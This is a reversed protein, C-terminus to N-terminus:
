PTPRDPYAPPTGAVEAAKPVARSKSAMRAGLVLITVIAAVVGAFYAVAVGYPYAFVAAILMAILGALLLLLL